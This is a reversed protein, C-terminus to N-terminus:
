MSENKRVKVLFPLIEPNLDWSLWKVTKAKLLNSLIKM